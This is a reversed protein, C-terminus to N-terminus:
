EVFQDAFGKLRALARDELLIAEATSSQLNQHWQTTFMKVRSNAIPNVYGNLEAVSQLVNMLDNHHDILIQTQESSLDRRLAMEILEKAATLLVPDYQFPTRAPAHKLAVLFHEVAALSRQAAAKGVTAARAAAELDRREANKAQERSQRNAITFAVVIAVVSGAAQLWAAAEASEIGKKSVAFVLGFILLVATGILVLLAAWQKRSLKKM